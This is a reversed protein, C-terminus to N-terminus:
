KGAEADFADLRKILELGMNFCSLVTHVEDESVVSKAAEIVSLAVILARAVDGNHVYQTREWPYTLGPRM